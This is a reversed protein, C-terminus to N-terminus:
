KTSVQFLVIQPNFRIHDEDLLRLAECTLLIQREVGGMHMAHHVFAINILTGSKKKIEDGSISFCILMFLVTVKIVYTM